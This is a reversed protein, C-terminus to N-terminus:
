GCTILGTLSTGRAACSARRTSAGSTRSARAWSRLWYSVRSCASATSEAAPGTLIAVSSHELFACGTAVVIVDAALETGDALAVGTPTIRAVGSGSKVKIKGDIIM